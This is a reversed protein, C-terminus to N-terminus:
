TTSVKAGATLDEHTQVALADLFAPLFSGPGAATQAAVEGALGYSAL